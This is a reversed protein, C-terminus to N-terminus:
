DPIVPALREELSEFLDRSGVEVHTQGTAASRALAKMGADDRLRKLDAGSMLETVSDEPTAEGLFVSGAPVYAIASVDVDDDTPGVSLSGINVEAGFWPLRRSSRSRSRAMALSGSSCRETSNSTPSSPM